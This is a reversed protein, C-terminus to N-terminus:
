NKNTKAKKGSLATEYPMQAAVHTPTKSNKVIEDSILFEPNGIIIQPKTKVSKNTNKDTGCVTPRNQNPKPAGRQNSKHSLGKSRNFSLGTSGKSPKKIATQTNRGKSNKDSVGTVFSVSKKSRGSQSESESDLVDIIESVKQTDQSFPRKQIESLSQKNQSVVMAASPPGKPRAGLFQGSHAVPPESQSMNNRESQTLTDDNENDNEEDATAYDDSLAERQRHSQDVEKHHNDYRSHYFGEHHNHNDQGSDDHHDDQYQDYVNHHNHHEQDYNKHHNHHEQDYDKHHNHHEQDYDKHHNHNDDHNSKEQAINDLIMSIGEILNGDSLKKGMLDSESSPCSSQDRRGQGLHTINPQDQLWKFFDKEPEPTKSVRKPHNKISFNTEEFINSPVIPTKPAKFFKKKRIEHKDKVRESGEISSEFSDSTNISSVLEYFNTGDSVKFVNGNSFLDNVKAKTTNKPDVAKKLKQFKEMQKLAKERQHFKLNIGPNLPLCLFDRIKKAKPDIKHTPNIIQVRDIHKKSAKKQLLMAFHDIQTETFPLDLLPFPNLIKKIRELPVILKKPRAPRKGKRFHESPVIKIPDFPIVVASKSKIQYIRFPKKFYFTRLKAGPAHGKSKRAVLCFDGKKLSTTMKPTNELKQVMRNKIQLMVEKLHALRSHYHGLTEAKPLGLFNLKQLRPRNFGFNHIIEIPSCNNIALPLANYTLSLLTGVAPMLGEQLPTKLCIARAMKLAISNKAESRNSAARTSVYQKIRFIKCFTALKDSIFAAQGDTNIMAPIGTIHAINTLFMNVFDEGSINHNCAFYWTANSFIDTVSLLSPYKKFTSHVVLFDFHICIFPKSVLIAPGLINERPWPAKINLLCNECSSLIKKLTPSFDQILFYKDTLAKLKKYSIHYISNFNHLSWLLSYTLSKPVILKAVQGKRKFLLGKKTFCLDVKVKLKRCLMDEEQLKAFHELSIHPLHIELIQQIAFIQGDGPHCLTRSQREHLNTINRHIGTSFFDAKEPSEQGLFIAQSAAIHLVQMPKEPFNLNEKNNQYGQKVKEEGHKELIKNFKVCVKFIDEINLAPLGSFDLTLLKQPDFKKDNFVNDIARKVNQPRSWMDSWVILPSNQALALVKIPLSFVFTSWNYVQANQYCYKAAWQLCIADTLALHRQSSAISFYIINMNLGIVLSFMEAKAQSFFIESGKFVKSHHSIPCLKGEDDRQFVTHSCGMKRAADTVIIFQKSFDPLAVYFHKILLNKSDQWSKEQEPGWKFIAKESCNAYIPSLIQALNPIITSWMAFMGTYRRCQKKTKPTPLQAIENLKAKDPSLLKKELDLIYGFLKISKNHCLNQKNYHIKINANDLTQFLKELVILHDELTETAVILNDCFPTVYPDLKAKILIKTIIRTFISMACNLGHQLKKPVFHCGQFNFALINQGKKSSLPVQWYAILCDVQSVFNKTKLQNIIDRCPLIPWASLSNIKLKSNVGRLDTIARINSFDANQPKPDSKIANKSIQHRKTNKKGNQVLEPGKPDNKSFHASEPNKSIKPSGAGQQHASEAVRVPSDINTPLCAEKEVINPESNKRVFFLSSSWACKQPALGILNRNLLTQLFSKAAPLLSPHTPIAMQNVPTTGTNVSLKVYKSSGMDISEVDHKDLGYINQYKQCLNILRQKLGPLPPCDLQEWDIAQPVECPINCFIDSEREQLKRHRPIDILSRFIQLVKDDKQAHIDKLSIQSMKEVAGIEENEAIIIPFDTNNHFYITTGCNKITVVQYFISLDEQKECYEHDESHAVWLDSVDKNSTKENFLESDLCVQLTEGSYPQVIHHNKSYFTFYPVSDEAVRLISEFNQNCPAFLERKSIILDYKSVFDFGILIEKLSSEYIVIPHKVDLSGLQFRATYIGLIALHKNQCSHLKPGTYEKLTEHFFPNINLAFFSDSCITIAAGTDITALVKIGELVLSIIMAHRNEIFTGISQYGPLRTEKDKGIKNITVNEKSIVEMFRQNGFNVWNQLTFFQFFSFRQLGKREKNELAGIILKPEECFCKQLHQQTMNRFPIIEREPSSESVSETYESNTSPTDLASHCSNLDYFNGNCIQAAPASIQGINELNPPESIGSRSNGQVEGLESVDGLTTNAKYTDTARMNAKCTNEMCINTRLIGRKLTGLSRTCGNAADSLAKFNLGQATIEGRETNHCSMHAQELYNSGPGNDDGKPCEHGLKSFKQQFLQTTQVNDRFHKPEASMTEENSSDTTSNIETLASCNDFVQLISFRNKIKIPVGGKQPPKLPPINKQARRGRKPPGVLEWKQRKQAM